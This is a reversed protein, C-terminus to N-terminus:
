KKANRRKRLQAHKKILSDFSEKGISKHKKEWVSWRRTTSGGREYSMADIIKDDEYAQRQIWATGVCIHYRAEHGEDWVGNCYTDRFYLRATAAELFYREAKLFEGNQVAQEAMMEPKKYAYYYQSRSM